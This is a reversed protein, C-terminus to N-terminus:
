MYIVNGTHLQLLHLFFECLRQHEREIHTMDRAAPPRPLIGAVHQALNRTHGRTQGSSPHMQLHYIQGRLSLAPFQVNEMLEERESAALGWVVSFRFWDNVAVNPNIRKSHQSTLGGAEFSGPM